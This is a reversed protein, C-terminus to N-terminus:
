PESFSVAHGAAEPRIFRILREAEEVLAVRSPKALRQFPKLELSAQGRRLEVSWTGAVMGDILLTPLWQLNARIYVLERYADPLIRRRHRSAYALLVSDFWPLLRPPAELEADPRPASPLDFLMRGTDDEFRTFETAARELAARVPPTRWGIWGAVDEAAAPGFAALHWRIVSDLAKEGSPPSGGSAPPSGFANPTRLGTWRGDQPVKVLATSTLFPRWKYARQRALEAEDLLLGQGAIWAEILQVIEEATRPASGAFSALEARLPELDLPQQAATRRWDNLGSDAVVRGYIPYQSASAVHLTGRLLNGVVLRRQEFAKQLGELEFSRLRSWLAVAVAPWYQAQVAGIAEVGEVPSLDLPQLLGQRSLLARNLARTGLRGVPEAAPM